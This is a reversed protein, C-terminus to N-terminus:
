QERRRRAAGLAATFIVDSRLKSKNPMFCNLCSIGHNCPLECIVCIGNETRFFDSADRFEDLDNLLPNSSYEQIQKKVREVDPVPPGRPDRRTGKSDDIKYKGVRYDEEKVNEKKGKM